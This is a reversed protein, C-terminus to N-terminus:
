VDIFIQVVMVGRLRVTLNSDLINNGHLWNISMMLKWPEEELHLLYSFYINIKHFLSKQGQLKRQWPFGVLPLGTIENHWFLGFFDVFIGIHEVGWWNAWGFFFFGNWFKWYSLIWLQFIWDYIGPCWFTTTGAIWSRRTLWCCSCAQGRRSRMRAREPAADVPIGTSGGALWHDPNRWFFQLHGHHGFGICQLCKQYLHYFWWTIIKLPPPIELWFGGPKAGNIIGICIAGKWNRSRTINNEKEKTLYWSKRLSVSIHIYVHPYSIPIRYNISWNTTM